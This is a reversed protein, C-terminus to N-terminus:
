LVSLPNELLAATQPDELDLFTGGAAACMWRALTSKGCQRPGLIAVIPSRRLAAQVANQLEPRAIMWANQFELKRFALITGSSIVLWLCLLAPDGM